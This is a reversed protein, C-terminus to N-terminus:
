RSGFYFLIFALLTSELWGPLTQVGGGLTALVIFVCALVVVLAQLHILIGWRPPPAERTRGGRLWRVLIGGLYAFLLAVTGVAAPDFLRGQLLLVLMAFGFGALIILRISGKPLWLPNEADAAAAPAETGAAGPLAVTVSRRSAFYHALVIMLTESLLLGVEIGFLLQYIVIGVITLALIARVSGQPMGLPRISKNTM